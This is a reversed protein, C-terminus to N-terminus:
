SPNTWVIQAVDEPTGAQAIQSELVNLQYTCKEIWAMGDQGAKQIQAATHARLSTAGAQSTCKFMTTWTSPLGPMLTALVSSAMNAQDEPTSPYTYPAGLASSVYGSQTAIAWADNVAQVQKQRALNIPTPLDAAAEEDTLVVSGPPLESIYAISAFYAVDGNANRYYPM